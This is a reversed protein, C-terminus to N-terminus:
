GPPWLLPRGALLHVHLHFVTQGGDRNTNIVLRYGSEDLGESKAWAAAKLLIHGILQADEKEVEAMSRISKKPIFLVHQPAQPNVDRFGLCLDDEYVITAPIERAIIKSFITSM